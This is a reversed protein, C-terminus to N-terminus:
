MAQEAGTGDIGDMLGVRVVVDVRVVVVGVLELCRGVVEWANEPLIEGIM